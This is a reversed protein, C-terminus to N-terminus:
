KFYAAVLGGVMAVLSAVQIAVLWTFYRDVKENMQEFRRNMEGRLSNTEARLEAFGSHM